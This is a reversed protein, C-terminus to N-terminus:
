KKRPMSKSVRTGLSFGLFEVEAVVFPIDPICKQTLASKEDKEIGLEKKISKMQEMLFHRRQDKSIKEEVREEIKKQLRAIDIEKKLLELAKHAKTPVDL